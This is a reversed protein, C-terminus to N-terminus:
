RNENIVELQNLFCTLMKTGFFVKYCNHFYLTPCLKCVVIGVGQQPVLDKNTRCLSRYCQSFKVLDGVQM